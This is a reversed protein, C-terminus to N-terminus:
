DQHQIITEAIGLLQQKEQLTPDGITDVHYSVGEPERIKQIVLQTIIEPNNM